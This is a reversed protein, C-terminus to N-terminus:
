SHFRGYICHVLEHGIFEPAYKVQPDVIHITCNGKNDIVSWAQVLVTDTTTAKRANGAAQLDKLTPHEVININLHSNFVEKRQFEYQDKGTNHPQNCAALLLLLTLTLKKM